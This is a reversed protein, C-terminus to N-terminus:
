RGRPHGYLARALGLRQRQGGSIRNGREGMRTDLGDPLTRVWEALRATELSTWIEGEAEGSAPPRGLSVNFRVDDDWVFTDQAVYGVASLSRRRVTGRQPALLGILVDVLTTKGAGTEGVIAVLEGSHLALSIDSLVDDVATPYRFSVGELAVLGVTDPRDRTEVQASALGER